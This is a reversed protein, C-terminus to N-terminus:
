SCDPVWRFAELPWHFRFPSCLLFMSKGLTKKFIKSGRFGGRFARHGRPITKPHDQRRQYAHQSCDQIMSLERARDQFDDEARRPGRPAMTAWSLPSSWGRCGGKWAWPSPTPPPTFGEGFPSFPTTSCFPSRLGGMGLPSTPYITPGGRM